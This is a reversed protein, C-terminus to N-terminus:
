LISNNVSEIRYGNDTKKIRTVSCNDIRVRWMQYSSSNLIQSLLARISGGHTVVLVKELDSEIDRLFKRTREKHEKLSEGDEPRWNEHDEREVENWISRHEGELVGLKRERLMDSDEIKMGAEDAIKNATEVSRELDSSYIADLDWDSVKRALKEAQKIGEKSLGCDIQGQVLGKRNYESEAHRVFYFDTVTLM